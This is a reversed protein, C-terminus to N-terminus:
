EIAIWLARRANSEMELGATASCFLQDLRDRYPSISALVADPLGDQWILRSPDNEMMKLEAELVGRHSEEGDGVRMAELQRALCGRLMTSADPSLADGDSFIERRTQKSLLLDHYATAYIYSYEQFGMSASLLADNRLEFFRALFPTIELAAGGLGAAVEGVEKADTADRSELSEVSDFGKRVAGYDDCAAVLTTRLDLFLDMRAASISGSPAPLYTAEHGLSQDLENLSESAEQLPIWTQVSVVGVVLLPVGILVAALIGCGKAASRNNKGLVM